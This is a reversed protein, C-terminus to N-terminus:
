FVRYSYSSSLNPDRMDKETQYQSCDFPDGTGNYNGPAIIAKSAVGGHLLRGDGTDLNNNDLMTEVNCIFYSSVYNEAALSAPKDMAASNPLRSDPYICINADMSIKGSAPM